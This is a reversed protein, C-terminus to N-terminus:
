EDAKEKQHPPEPLPSAMRSAEALTIWAHIVQSRILRSHMWELQVQPLTPGKRPPTLVSLSVVTQCALFSSLTPISAFSPFARLHPIALAM